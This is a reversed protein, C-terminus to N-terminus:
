NASFSRSIANIIHEYSFRQVHALTSKKLKSSNVKYLDIFNCLITKLSEVNNNFITNIGNKTILDISAGCKDSAIVPVGCAMAENIALGWTEGPGKSPLCFVNGLRYVVPMLSQNQFPLFHIYPKGRAQEKLKQELIGNGILILHYSCAPLQFSSTSETFNKENTAHARNIETIANILMGPNKKPEFKGAFLVVFADNPIGLEQRWKKAKVEYQREENDEFRENDVAHPAYVLQSEKLGHHLFYAKNNTGVYFAKDVYRYIFRLFITRAKFLLYNKLAPLQFSSAPLDKLSKFDYNLLTSDGRFWIPIKGKFYRMVQFHSKHNWGFVLIANPMFEKIKPILDPNDVGNYKKSGPKKSINEVAEWQYGELLPIDWEIKQHFDPDDFDKIAQSWTYFVKVDIEGSESLKRFLPSYYQIPHTSIIALKKM